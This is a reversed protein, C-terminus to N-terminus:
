RVACFITFAAPSVATAHHLGISGSLRELDTDEAHDLMAVQRTGNGGMRTKVQAIDGIIVVPRVPGVLAVFQKGFFEANGVQAVHLCCDACLFKVGNGHAGLCLPVAIQCDASRFRSKM